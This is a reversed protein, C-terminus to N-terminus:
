LRTEFAILNVGEPPRTAILALADPSPYAKETDSVPTPM